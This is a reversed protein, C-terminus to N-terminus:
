DGEAPKLEKKKSKKPEGDLKLAVVPSDPDDLVWDNTKILYPVKESDIEFVGKAQFRGIYRLLVKSM